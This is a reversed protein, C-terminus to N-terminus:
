IVSLVLTVVYSEGLWVCDSGSNIKLTVNESKPFKVGIYCKNRKCM